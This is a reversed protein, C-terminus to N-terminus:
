IPATLFPPDTRADVATPVDNATIVIGTIMLLLSVIVGAIDAPSGHLRVNLWLIGLAISIVPDASTIIAQVPALFKGQQFADQNLLFGAPGVVAFVYIPWNSFVESLGGGFESTLIKVLFAAVGYNVGCALALALPRLTRNRAAVALCGGVV